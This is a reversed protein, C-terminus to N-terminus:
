GVSVSLIKQNDLAKQGLERPSYGFHAKFRRSFHAQDAFGWQYALQTLPIKSPQQLLQSHAGELRLTMLWQGFTTQTEKFLAHLYRISIQCADAVKQPNLDNQHLHLRVYSEIRWLHANQISSEQTQLIRQDAQLVHSFLSMLQQGVLEHGNQLAGRRLQEGTLCLLQTFLYGMGAQANFSLGGYREPSVVYQKMIKHPVKLVWLRNENGYEFCYPEHSLELLVEGVACITQRGMQEFMVKNRIPVTILFAEDSPLYSLHQKLRQYKAGSSSLYSLSLDGLRWNAIHGDFQEPQRFLVNLQFYVNAIVDQWDTQRSLPASIDTNFQFGM